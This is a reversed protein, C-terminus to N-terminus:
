GRRYKKKEKIQIREKVTVYVATGVFAMFLAHLALTSVGFMVKQNDRLFELFFRSYGFLMLMMPYALGKTDCGQKKEYRCVIIVIALAVLAEIPQCPFTNVELAPNYIGWKFPYGHCCGAFVCGWHSVAQIMPVCPAVFDCGKAWEIKMFKGVLWVALPVWVFTRVINNGGWGRFGNEIWCQTFMWVASIAYVLTIFILSKALPLDYHKRAVAGYLFVAVFGAAFFIEYLTQGLHNEAVIEILQNLIRKDGEHRSKTSWHLDESGYYGGGGTNTM